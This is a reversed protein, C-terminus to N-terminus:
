QDWVARPSSLGSLDIGFSVITAKAGTGYFSPSAGLESELRPDSAMLFHNPPAWQPDLSAFEEQAIHWKTYRGLIDNSASSPQWRMGHEFDDWFAVVTTGNSVSTTRQPGTQSPAAVPQMSVLLIIGLAIVAPMSRLGMM